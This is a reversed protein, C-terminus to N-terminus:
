LAAALAFCRLAGSLHALDDFRMPHLVSIVAVLAVFMGAQDAALADASRLTRQQAAPRQHDCAEAFGVGQDSAVDAFPQAADVRPHDAYVM